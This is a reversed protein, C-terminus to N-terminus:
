LELYSFLEFYKADTIKRYNKKDYIDGHILGKDKIIYLENENLENLHLRCAITSGGGTRIFYVQSYGHVIISQEYSKRDLKADWILIGNTDSLVRLLEILTARNINPGGGESMILHFSRDPINSLNGHELNVIMSPNACIEIDITYCDPHYHYYIYESDSRDCQNGNGCGFILTKEGKYPRLIFGNTKKIFAQIEQYTLEVVIADESEDVTLPHHEEDVFMTPYFSLYLKIIKDIEAM